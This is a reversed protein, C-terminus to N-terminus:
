SIASYFGAFPLAMVGLRIPYRLYFPWRLFNLSIRKIQINAAIGILTSLGVISLLKQGGKELTQTDKPLLMFPMQFYFLSLLDFGNVQKLM